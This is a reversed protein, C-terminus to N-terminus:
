RPGKRAATGFRRKSRIGARARGAEILANALLVFDERRSRHNTINVRVALRGNIRTTSPAAIGQEHLDAVLNENLADLEPESLGRPHFRFCVINLSPEALLELQPARRVLQALYEAQRCNQLIMEGLARAGYTKLTFWVKLAM